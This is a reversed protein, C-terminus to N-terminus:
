QIGKNLELSCAVSMGFGAPKRDMWLILSNTLTLIDNDNNFAFSPDWFVPIDSNSRDENNYTTIIM